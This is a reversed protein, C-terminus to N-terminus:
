WKDSGSIIKAFLNTNSSFIDNLVYVNYVVTMSNTHSNAKDFKNM